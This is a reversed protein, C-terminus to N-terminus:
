NKNIIIYLNIWDIIDDNEKENFILKTFIRTQLCSLTFVIELFEFLYGISFNTNPYFNM